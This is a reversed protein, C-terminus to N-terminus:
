SQEPSWFVLVETGSGHESAVTLAAGVRQARERMSHLGVTDRGARSADFGSGDDRVLVRVSQNEFSLEVDISRAAAHKIANTLAEHVIRFLEDEMDAPVATAEGATHLSLRATTLPGTRRLLDRVADTLTRGELALPRLARISRRAEVLSDRAIETAVAVHQMAAAPSASAAGELQRVIAALGQAITDHIDRALRNREESVAAVRAAQSLRTLEMALVAQNAFTHALEVEEPAFKRDERFRLSLAGRFQERLYMPISVITRIGHRSFYDRFGDYNPEAAIGAEDLVLIERRKAPAFLISALARANQLAPHESTAPSRVQGDEFSVLMRTEEDTSAEWVGGGIAAFQEVAATMVQGLFADLHPSSALRELTHRSAEAFRALSEARARAAQERQRAAEERERTVAAERVEEALRSVRFALSAQNALTQILELDEALPDDDSELHLTFSGVIREGLVMPVRLLRRVGRGLLYARQEESLGPHVTVPVVSPAPTAVGELWHQHWANPVGPKMLRAYTSESGRVVRGDLITWLMHAVHDADFIWVSASRVGVQDAIARLAHGLLAELDDLRRVSELAEKLATHARALKRARQEATRLEGRLRELEDERQLSETM